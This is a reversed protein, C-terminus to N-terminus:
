ATTLCEADRLLILDRTVTATFPTIHVYLPCPTPATATTPYKRNFTNFFPPHALSSLTRHRLLFNLQCILLDCVFFAVGIMRVRRGDLPGAILPVLTRPSVYLSARVSLSLDLSIATGTLLLITGYM